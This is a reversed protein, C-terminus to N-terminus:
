GATNCMGNDQSRDLYQRDEENALTIKHILCDGVKRM